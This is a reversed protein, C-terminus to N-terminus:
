GMRRLAMGYPNSWEKPLSDGDHRLDCDTLEIRGKRMGSSQGAHQNRQGNCGSHALIDLLQEVVRLILLLSVEELGDLKLDTQLVIVGLTVLTERAGDLQGGDRAGVHGDPIYSLTGPSGTQISLSISDASLHINRANETVLVIKVTSLVM